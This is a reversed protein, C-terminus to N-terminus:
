LFLSEFIGLRKKKTFQCFLDAYHDNHLKAGFLLSVNIETVVQGVIKIKQM